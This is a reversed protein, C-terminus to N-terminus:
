TRPMRLSEAGHLWWVVDTGSATRYSRATGKVRTLLFL